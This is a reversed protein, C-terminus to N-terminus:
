YAESVKSAVMSEVLGIFCNFEQSNARLNSIMLVQTGMPYIGFPLSFDTDVMIKFM